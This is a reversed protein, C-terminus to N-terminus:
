QNAIIYDIAEQVTTLKEAEEDPIEPKLSRKWLWLSNSLIWLILASIMLLLPHIKFTLGKVGLQESVIKKVREEVTSM